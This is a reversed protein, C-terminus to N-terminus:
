KTVELPLFITLIIRSIIGLNSFFTVLTAKLLSRVGDVRAVPLCIEVYGASEGSM